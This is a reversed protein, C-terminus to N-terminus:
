LIARGPRSWATGHCEVHDKLLQLDQEHPKGMSKRHAGQSAANSTHDASAQTTAISPSDLTDPGVLGLTATDVCAAPTIESSVRGVLSSRV